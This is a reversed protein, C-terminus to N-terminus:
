LDSADKEYFIIYYKCDTNLLFVIISYGHYITM